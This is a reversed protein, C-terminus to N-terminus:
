EAAVRGWKEVSWDDASTQLADPCEPERGERIEAEAVEFWSTGAWTMRM